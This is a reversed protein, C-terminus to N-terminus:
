RIVTYKDSTQSYSAYEQMKSLLDIRSALEFQNQETESNLKAFLHTEDGFEHEVISIGSEVMERRIDEPVVKDKVGLYYILDGDDGLGSLVLQMGDDTEYITPFCYSTGNLKELHKTTLLCVQNNSTIKFTDGKSISINYIGDGVNSISICGDGVCDVNNLPVDNFDSFYTLFSVVERLKNDVVKITGPYAFMHEYVPKDNKNTFGSVETDVSIEYDYYNNLSLFTHEGSIQSSQLYGGDAKTTVLGLDRSDIDGAVDNNLILYSDAKDKTAYINNKTVVVTSELNSSVSNQNHDTAYGFFGGKLHENEFSVNGGVTVEAGQEDLYHSVYTSAYIDSDLANIDDAQYNVSNTFRQGSESSYDASSSYSLSDTLPISINATILHDDFESSSNSLERSYNYGLDLGVNTFISTHYNLSLNLLEIDKEYNDQQYEEYYNLYFGLNGVPMAMSYSASTQSYSKEGYRVASLNSVSQGEDVKFWEQDINLGLFSSNVSAMYGNDVFSVFAGVQYGNGFIQSGVGADIDDKDLQSQVNVIVQDNLFSKVFSLDVYDSSYDDDEGSFEMSKLSVSYDYGRKSTRSVNNNIRKTYREEPYGNPELVLTVSYNGKPLQSYKINNQGRLVSDNYIVKSERLVTVIGAAKMDFYLQGSQSINKQILNDNSYYSAYYGKNDYAHDFMSTANDIVSSPQDRYGVVSSAGQFDSTLSLEDLEISEGNNLSSNVSVHSSGFGLISENTFTSSFEGNVGSTYLKNNSILANESPLTNVYEEIKYEGDMYESPIHLEAYGHDADYEIWLQEDHGYSSLESVNLLIEEVHQAKIGANLLKKKAEEINVVNNIHDFNAEVQLQITTKDPLGLEIVKNEYSYFHEFGAPVFSAEVQISYFSVVVFITLVFCKIQKSNNFM